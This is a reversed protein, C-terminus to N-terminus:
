PSNAISVPLPLPLGSLKAGQPASEAYRRSACYHLRENQQIPAGTRTLFSLFKKSKPPTIRPHASAARQSPGHSFDSSSHIFPVLEQKLTITKLILNQMPKELGICDACAPITAPQRKGQFFVESSHMRQTRIPHSSETNRKDTKSGPSCTQRVSARAM